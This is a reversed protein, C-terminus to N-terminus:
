NSCRRCFMSRSERGHSPSREFINREAVQRPESHTPADARMSGLPNVAIGPEHASSATVTSACGSLTALAAFALVSLTRLSMTQDKPLPFIRLKRTGRRTSRPLWFIERDRVIEDFDDDKGEEV